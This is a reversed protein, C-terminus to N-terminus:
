WLSPTNVAVERWRRCVGTLLVPAELASPRNSEPFCHDPLCHHFIQSLVETPLRWLRSTLGKHLIMSHRIRDKKKLLQRHINKIGDMVSQLGSIEHLVADLQQQRESIIAHI